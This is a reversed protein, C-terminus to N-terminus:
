KSGLEFLAMAEVHGTQSFMDLAVLRQVKYGQRQLQLADRAMTAPNCSVYLLRRAAFTGLQQVLEQAGSRPPDLILLDYHKQAWVEQQLSASLDHQHFEINTFGQRQACNQARRVMSPVGEVAVVRAVHRALPLSFNGLGCFLDLVMDDAGPQLWELALDVMQANLAANIQVFDGPQYDIEIQHGPLSYFLRDQPRDPYPEGEEQWWLSTQQQQCYDRLQQRDHETLKRVLRVLLAAQNGYFIEIHGLAQPQQLQALQRALGALVPQLQTVLIPCAAVPVIQRSSLARFGLQVTGKKDVQVALRARRRYAQGSAMLMLEPPPVAIGARELASLLHAQKFQRQQAMPMHQLTCGGCHGALPCFPQQRNDAAHLVSACIADVTTGRSSLVRASVQEGPLAGAVFWTRGAAFAIGRGDHALREISLQQKHGPALTQRAPERGTQFRLGAAKKRSM